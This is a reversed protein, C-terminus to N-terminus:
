KRKDLFHSQWERHQNSMNQYYSVAVKNSTKFSSIEGRKERLFRNFNNKNQQEVSEIEVSIDTISRIYNQMELIQSQLNYKNQAIYPGAKSFVSDFGKDLETMKDILVQKEDVIADFAGTDLETIKEISLLKKQGKTKRFIM